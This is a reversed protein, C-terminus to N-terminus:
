GNQIIAINVYKEENKECTINFIGKLYGKGWRLINWNERSRPSTYGPFDTHLFPEALCTDTDWQRLWEQDAVSARETM